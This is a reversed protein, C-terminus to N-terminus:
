RSSEVLAAAMDLQHFWWYWAESAHEPSFYGAEAGPVFPDIVMAQLVRNPYKRVLKHVIAAAWDHGVLYAQKIQLQEMLADLDEVVYDPGFLKPQDLPPKESDGYGRMDPVIVDFNQALPGINLHWEWWFGPWGHLLILPPGSGERVYHLRIEPLKAYHHTFAEPRRLEEAAGPLAAGLAFGGCLILRWM